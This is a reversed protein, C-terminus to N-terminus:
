GMHEEEVFTNFVLVWWGYCWFIGSKRIQVGLWITTGRGRWTVTDGAALFWMGSGGGKGFLFWKSGAPSGVWVEWGDTWVGQTRTMRRILNNWTSCRCCPGKSPGSPVYCWVRWPWRIKCWGPTWCFWRSKGESKTPLRSKPQHWPHNRKKPFPHLHPHKGQKKSM